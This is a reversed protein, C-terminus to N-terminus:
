KIVEDPQVGWIENRKIWGRYDGTQASCWESGAECALLRLIVGAKLRAAPPAAPDAAQRLVHEGGVVIATRRGTLTAQHVWGKNGEPDRVLRWIEFEREIQVPLDRRKYVWEIPYRTGPGSRFNVDDSRLAAFRPLPLGSSGKPPEVPGAQVPPTVPVPAPHPPPPKPRAAPGHGPKGPPKPAQGPKGSPKPAQGPKGPPKPGSAPKAGQAPKGPPRPGPTPVAHDAGYAPLALLLFVAALRM